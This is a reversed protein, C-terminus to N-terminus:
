ALDGVRKPTCQAVQSVVSLPLYRRCRPHGQVEIEVAGCFCGGKFTQTESM